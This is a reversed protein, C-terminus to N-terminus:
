APKGDSAKAERFGQAWANRFARSFTLRGDDKRKDPYPCDAETQGIRAAWAGKEKAADLPSRKV